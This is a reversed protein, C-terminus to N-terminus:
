AARLRSAMLPARTYLPDFIRLVDAHTIDTIPKSGIGDLVHNKLNAMFARTGKLSRWTKAKVNVYQQVAATFTLPPASPRKAGKAAAISARRQQAPDINAALDAKHRDRKLRAEALGVAPFPGLPIENYKGFRRYRFVWRKSTSGDKNANVLLWLGDGDGRMGVGAKVVALATLKGNV